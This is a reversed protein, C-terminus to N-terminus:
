ASASPSTASQWPFHPPWNSPDMARAKIELVYMTSCILHYATCYRTIFQLIDLTIAPSLTQKKKKKNPVDCYCPNSTCWSHFQAKLACKNMGM